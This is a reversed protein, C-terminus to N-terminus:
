ARKLYKVCKPYKRQIQSFVVAIAQARSVYRGDHYEKINIKIKESLLKKCKRQTM